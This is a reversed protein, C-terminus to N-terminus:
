PHLKKKFYLILKSPFYLGARVFFVSVKVYFPYASVYRNNRVSPFEANLQRIYHKWEAMGMTSLAVMGSGYLGTHAFIGALEEVHTGNLCGCIYRLAGLTNMPSALSGTHVLSAAHQVYFYLPKQIHCFSECAFLATKTFAIDEGRMQDPFRLGHESLVSSKYIKGWVAGRAFVTVAGKDAADPAFASNFVSARRTSGDAYAFVFDFLVCDFRGETLVPCVTDFFDESFCDDSDLFTVYQGELESLARNRSGAPGLNKENRFVRMSFPCDKAYATLKEFTDDTSCDDVCLVEFSANAHRSLMSLGKEMLSFSNHCPIVISLLLNEM